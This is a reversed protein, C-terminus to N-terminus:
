GRVFNLLDHTFRDRHTLVIGHPAGDYIRLESRSIAEALKRGTVELPCVKDNDGQIILTPVKIAGLHARQDVTGINRTCEISAYPSSRLFMDLVWQGMAPSVPTPEGLFLPLGGALFAPRDKKLAAVISDSIERNGPAPPSPSTFLVRAVRGAGHRSMYRIIEGSGMSYGVLTIDRLDLKQIVAALDAALTDFDYGRGPDESRGHGRRDYAICRLGQETLENLQYEWIDANLGWPHCFVVPSGSGWDRYFLRTGDSTEIFSGAHAPPQAPNSASRAPQLSAALTTGMVGLAVSKMLARREMTGGSFSELEDRAADSKSSGSRTARAFGGASIPFDGASGANMQRRGLWLATTYPLSAPSGMVEPTLYDICHDAAGVCFLVLRQLPCVAARLM